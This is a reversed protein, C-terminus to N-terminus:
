VGGRSSFTKQSKCSSNGDSISIIIICYYINDIASFIFFVRVKRRSFHPYRLLCVHIILTKQSPCIREYSFSGKEFPRGLLMCILEVVMATLSIYANVCAAYSASKCIPVSSSEIAISEIHWADGNYDKSEEKKKEAEKRLEGKVARAYRVLVAAALDAKFEAVKETATM